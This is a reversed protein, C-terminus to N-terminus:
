AGVPGHVGRSNKDKDDNIHRNSGSFQSCGSILPQKVYMGIDGNVSNFLNGLVYYTNLLHKNVTKM